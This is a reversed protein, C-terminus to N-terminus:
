APARNGRKARKSMGEQVGVCRRDGKKPREWRSVDKGQEQNWKFKVGM